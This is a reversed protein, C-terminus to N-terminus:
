FNLGSFLCGETGLAVGGTVWHSQCLQRTNSKSRHVKPKMRQILKVLVWKLYWQPIKEPNRSKECCWSLCQSALLGEIWVNNWKNGVGLNLSLCKEGYYNTCVVVHCQLSSRKFLAESKGSHSHRSLGMVPSRRSESNKPSGLSWYWFNSLVTWLTGRAWEKIEVARAADERQDKCSACKRSKPQKLRWGM